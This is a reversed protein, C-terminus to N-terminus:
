VILIHANSLIQELRGNAGTGEISIERCPFAVNGFHSIVELEKWPLNVEFSKLASEGGPNGTTRIPFTTRSNTRNRGTTPRQSSNTPRRNPPMSLARGRWPEEEEEAAWTGTLSPAVTGRAAAMGMTPGTCTTASRTRM